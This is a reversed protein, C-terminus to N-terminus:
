NSKSVCSQKLSSRCIWFYTLGHISQVITILILFAITMANQKKWSIALVAIAGIITLVVAFFYVWCWSYAWPAPTDVSEFM